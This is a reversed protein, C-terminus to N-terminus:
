PGHSSRCTYPWGRQDAEMCLLYGHQSHSTAAACDDFSSFVSYWSLVFKYYFLQPTQFLAPYASYGPVYLVDGHQNAVWCCSRNFARQLICSSNTMRRTCGGVSGSLLTVPQASFQRHLLRCHHMLPEYRSEPSDLPRALAQPIRLGSYILRAHLRRM